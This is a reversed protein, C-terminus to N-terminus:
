YWFLAWLTGLWRIYMKCRSYGYQHVPVDLPCQLPRIILFNVLLGQQLSVLEVTLECNTMLKGPLSKTIKFLMRNILNSSAHLYSNFKFLLQNYVELYKNKRKCCSMIFPIKTLSYRYVLSSSYTNVKCNVCTSFSLIGTVM